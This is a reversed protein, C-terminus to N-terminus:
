IAQKPGYGAKPWLTSYSGLFMANTLMSATLGGIVGGAVTGLGPLIASGLTAGVGAGHMSSALATSEQTMSLVFQERSIKGQALKVVNGALIRGAHFLAVPGAGKGLNKLLVNKSNQLAGGLAATTIGTGYGVVASKGDTKATDILAEDLEKEGKCVAALNQM